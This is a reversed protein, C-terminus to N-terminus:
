GTPRLAFPDGSEIEISTASAAGDAVNSYCEPGIKEWPQLLNEEKAISIL